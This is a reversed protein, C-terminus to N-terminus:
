FANLQTQDSILNSNINNKAGKIAMKLKNSTVVDVQNKNLICAVINSCGALPPLCQVCMTMYFLNRVLKSADRTKRAMFVTYIPTRRPSFLYL